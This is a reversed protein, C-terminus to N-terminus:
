AAAGRRAQDRLTVLQGLLRRLMSRVEVEPADDVILRVVKAFIVLVAVADPDGEIAPELAAKYDDGAADVLASVASALYRTAASGGNSPYPERM